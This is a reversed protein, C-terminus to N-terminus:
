GGLHGTEGPHLLSPALMITVAVLILGLVMLLIGVLRSRRRVIQTGGGCKPCISVSGTTVQGCEKSICTSLENMHREQQFELPRGPKGAGARPPLLLCRQM